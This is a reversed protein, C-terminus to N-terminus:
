MSICTIQIFVLLFIREKENKLIQMYEYLSISNTNLAMKQLIPVSHNSSMYHDIFTRVSFFFLCKVFSLFPKSNQLSNSVKKLNRVLLTEYWVTKWLQLFLTEYMLNRLMSDEAAAFFPKTDLTEYSATSILM